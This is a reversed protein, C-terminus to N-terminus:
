CKAAAMPYIRAPIALTVLGAGSRYTAEAALCPAGVYNASGGVVLASGFSGKHAALRRKPLQPAILAPTAVEADIVDALRPPIGIDAVLLEGVYEAGPFLLHGRKPYAFTVTLDAKLAAPDITGSDSDLGTPLDVAVLFPTPPTSSRGSDRWPHLSALPLSPATPKCDLHQKISILLARLDERLAGKVGTGLLADVVVGSQGLWERLLASEADQTSWAIPLGLQRIRHLNPDDETSRKWIYVRTCYGWEHLYRAAVLGDGGNNGPGVLVLVAADSAVRQQMASAVARGALEMMTAYDHGAQDALRELTRMQEATVLKM